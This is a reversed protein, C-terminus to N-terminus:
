GQFHALSISFEHVLKKSSVRFLIWTLRSSCGITKLDIQFEMSRDFTSSEVVYIFM